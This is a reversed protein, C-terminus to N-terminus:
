GKEIIYILSDRIARKRELEFEIAAIENKVEQLDDKWNNSNDFITIDQKM